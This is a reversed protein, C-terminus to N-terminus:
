TLRDRFGSHSIYGPIRRPQCRGAQHASSNSSRAFYGDCCPIALTRGYDPLNGHGSHSRFETRRDSLYNHLSLSTCVPNESSDNLDFQFDPDATCLDGPPRCIRKGQQFNSASTCLPLQKNYAININCGTGIGTSKSVSDCTVFLM